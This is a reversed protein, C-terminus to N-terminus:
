AGTLECLLERIHDDRDGRRGTGLDLELAVTNRMASVAAEIAADSLVARGLNTHLIVGTLNFLPRLQSAERLDLMRYACQIIDKQSPAGIRGIKVSERADSLVIRLANTAAQRGFQERLASSEPNTLLASVSPLDRLSELTQM